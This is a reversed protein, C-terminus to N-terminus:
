LLFSVHIYRTSRTWHIEKLTHDKSKTASDVVDTSDDIIEDQIYTDDDKASNLVIVQLTQSTDSISIDAERDEDKDDDKQEDEIVFETDSEEMVDALDDEFDSEVADLVAWVNEPTINTPINHPLSM